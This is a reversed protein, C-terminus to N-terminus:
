VNRLWHTLWDTLSHTVLMALSRVRTRYFFLNTNQGIVTSKMSWRNWWPSPKDSPTNGSGMNSSWFQQSFYIQAIANLLSLRYFNVKLFLLQDGLDNKFTRAEFDPHTIVKKVQLVQFDFSGALSHQSQCHYFNSCRSFIILAVLLGQDAEWLRREQSCWVRRNLCVPKRKECVPLWSTIIKIIM